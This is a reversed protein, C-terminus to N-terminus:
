SKHRKMKQTAQLIGWAGGYNYKINQLLWNNDHDLLTQVTMTEKHKTEASLTGLVHLPISYQRAWYRNEQNRNTCVKQGKVRIEWLWSQHEQILGSHLQSAM